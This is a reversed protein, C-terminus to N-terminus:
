RPNSLRRSVGIRRFDSTINIRNSGVGMERNEGDCITADKTCRPLSHLRWQRQRCRYSDRVYKTSPNKTDDSISVGRQASHLM